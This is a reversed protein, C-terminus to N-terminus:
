LQSSFDIKFTSKLLQNKLDTKFIPKSLIYKEKLNLPACCILLMTGKHNWGRVDCAQLM